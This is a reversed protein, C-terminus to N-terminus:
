GPTNLAEDLAARLQSPTQTPSYGIFRKYVRGERTLIFSQPISNRIQGQMLGVAVEQTSWGIRYPVKYQNVFAKVADESVDKDESTLGVIEVGKSKYDESLKVLEPTESRCPGCWTAWLNVVVIKGRYDSLKFASGDLGQLKAELVKAPLPAPPEGPPQAATTPKGDKNANASASNPKSNSGLGTTPQTCSSIGISALLVFTLLTLTLRLPTWFRIQERTRSINM